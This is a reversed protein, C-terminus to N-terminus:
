VAAIIENYMREMECFAINHCGATLIDNKYATIKYNGSATSVNYEKFTEPNDHWKKIIKWVKMAQATTIRINKSTEVTDANKWRFLANGGYFFDSQDSGSKSVAENISSYKKRWLERCGETGM